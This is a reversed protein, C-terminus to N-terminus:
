YKMFGTLSASVMLVVGLIAFVGEMGVTGALLGAALPGVAYGLDNFVSWMGVVSGREKEPTREVIIGEVSPWVLSMGSASIFAFVLLSHISGAAGFMMCAAGSIFLGVSLVRRKGLQDALIGAPAEFLILPIIFASMVLAGWFLGGSFQQYFIPELTWIIGDYVTLLFGLVLISYGTSGLKRFKRIQRLYLKDRFVVRKLGEMVPWHRTKERFKVVVLILALTCACTLVISSLILKSAIWLSLIGVIIPGLAYGLSIFSLEVGLVHAPKERPSYDMVYAIAPIRVAEIAIGYLMLFLIIAKLSSTFPLSIGLLILFFLAFTIIHKRGIRDALDGIPMDIFLVISSPIAMLVGVLIISGTLEEIIQPLLFWLAGAGTSWLCLVIGM